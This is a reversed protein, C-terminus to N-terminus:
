LETALGFAKTRAVGLDAGAEVFGATAGAVRAAGSFGLGRGPPIPSHWTLERAGGAARYAVAAPHTPECRHFGDPRAGGVELEFRLDVAVALADFGPGLNASSGPATVRM